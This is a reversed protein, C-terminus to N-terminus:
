IGDKKLIANLEEDVEKILEDNHARLLEIYSKDKLIAILKIDLIENSHHFGSSSHENSISGSIQIKELEKLSIEKNELGIFPKIEIKLIGNHLSFIVKNLSFLLYLYGGIVSVICLVIILGLNAVNVPHDFIYWLLFILLLTSAAVIFGLVKLFPKYILDKYHIYFNNQSNSIIYKM